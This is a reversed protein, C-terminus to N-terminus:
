QYNNFHFYFRVTGQLEDIPSPPPPPYEKETIYCFQRSIIENVESDTLMEKQAWKETYDVANFSVTDDDLYDAYKGSNLETNLAMVGINRLLDTQEGNVENKHKSKMM